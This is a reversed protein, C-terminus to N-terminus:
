GRNQFVGLDRRGRGRGGEPALGGGQSTSEVLDMRLAEAVKSQYDEVTMEQTHRIGLFEGIEKTMQMDKAFAEPHTRSFLRTAIIKSFSLRRVRKVKSIPIWSM